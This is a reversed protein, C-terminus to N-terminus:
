EHLSQLLLSNSETCFSTKHVAYQIIKCILVFFVKICNFLCLLDKKKGEQDRRSVLIAAAKAPGWGIGILSLGQVVGWGVDGGLGWGM